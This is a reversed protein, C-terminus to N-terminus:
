SSFFGFMPGSNVFESTCGDDGPTAGAPGFPLAFGGPGGRGAAPM